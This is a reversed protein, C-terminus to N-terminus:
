SEHPCTVAPALWWPRAPKASSSVRAPGAYDSSGNGSNRTCSSRGSKFDLARQLEEANAMLRFRRARRPPPLFGGPWRRTPARRRRDGPRAASRPRPSISRLVCRTRPAGPTTGSSEAHRGLLHRRFDRFAAEQRRGADANRRSTNTRRNRCRRPDGGARATQSAIELKRRGAWDHSKGHHCLM